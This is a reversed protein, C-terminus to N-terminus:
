SDVRSVLAVVQHEAGEQFLGRAHARLERHSVGEALDAFGPDPPLTM